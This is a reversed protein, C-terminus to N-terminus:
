HRVQACTQSGYRSIIESFIPAIRHRGLVQKAIAVSRISRLGPLNGGFDYSHYYLVIPGSSHKVAMSVAKAPLLRQYSGGGLPFGATRLVPLEAVPSTSGLRHLDSVYLYGSHALLERYSGLSIARPIEFRPSRFGCVQVGLMDELMERGRRLWDALASPKAPLMGHDAGHSGIEHGIAALDALEARVQPAYGGVVFFTIRHGGYQQADLLSILSTLGSRTSPLRKVPHGLVAMGDFWDEVDVTMSVRATVRVPGENHALWGSQHRNARLLATVRM